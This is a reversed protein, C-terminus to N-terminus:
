KNQQCLYKLNKCNKFMKVDIDHDRGHLYMKCKRLSLLRLMNCHLQSNKSTEMGCNDFILKRLSSCEKLVEFLRDVCYVGCTSIKITSLNNCGTMHMICRWVYRCDHIHLSRLQNYKYVVINSGINFWVNKFTIKVINANPIYKNINEINLCQHTMSLNLDLDLDLGTIRVYLVKDFMNHNMYRENESNKPILVNVGVLTMKPFNLFIDNIERFTLEYRQADYRFRTDPSLNHNHFFLILHKPHIYILITNLIDHPIM